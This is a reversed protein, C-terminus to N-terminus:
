TFSAFITFLEKQLYWSCKNKTQHFFCHCQGFQYRLKQEGILNTQSINGGIFCDWNVSLWWYHRHSGWHVNTGCVPSRDCLLLGMRLKPSTDLLYIEWEKWYREWNHFQSTLIPLSIALETSQLRVFLQARRFVSISSGLHGLLVYWGRFKYFPMRRRM